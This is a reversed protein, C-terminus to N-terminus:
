FRGETYPSSDLKRRKSDGTESGDRSKSRSRSRKKEADKEDKVFPLLEKILCSSPYEILPFQYVIFYVDSSYHKYNTVKIKKNKNVRERM